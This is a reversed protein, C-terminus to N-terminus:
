GPSWVPRRCPPISTGTAPPCWGLAPESDWTVPTLDDALLKPVKNQLFDMPLDSALEPYRKLAALTDERTRFSNMFLLPLRVQHRSRVALVQQAIVDLFTLGDRVELLSKAHELGMSTGLGGNLKVVVTESLAKCADEEPVHADALRDMGLPEITSEDVIGSDGSEVRRYQDTFADIALADVGYATMKAQARALGDQSM